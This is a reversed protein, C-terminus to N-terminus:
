LYFMIDDLNPHWPNKRKQGYKLTTPPQPQPRRYSSKKEDIEDIEKLARQKFKLFDEDKHQPVSLQGMLHERLWARGRGCLRDAYYAPACYSVGKTARAYIYCTAHTIRQLVDSTLQMQNTMVFYHASRGTGQLPMHSQLFFDERYPHTIVKDVVFGPKLNHNVRTWQGPKGKKEKFEQKEKIQLGPYVSDHTEDRKLGSLFSNDQTKDDTFFRTNHRKGVVVFTLRFKPPNAKASRGQNLFEYADNFADQLQPIENNRVDDYQSESVGDRYMLMNEPLTNQHKVAWNILREKV